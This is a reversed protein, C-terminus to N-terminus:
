RVLVNFRELECFWTVTVSEVELEAHLPGYEM